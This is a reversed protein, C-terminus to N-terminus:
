LRSSLHCSALDLLSKVGRMLIYKPIWYLIEPNTKNDWAMWEKLKNASEILLRIRDEDFCLMLHMATERRGCNPCRKDACADGLYCGVQVRTGLFGLNQKSRWIKYMNPKNKLALDLHEWDVADFKDNFWKNKTRM